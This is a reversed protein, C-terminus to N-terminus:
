TVDPRSAIAAALRDGDSIESDGSFPLTGRPVVRVAFGLRSLVAGLSAELGGALMTMDLLLAGTVSLGVFVLATRAPARALGRWALSMVSQM